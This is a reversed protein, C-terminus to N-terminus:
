VPTGAVEAVGVLFRVLRWDHGGVVATLVLIVVLIVVLVEVLVAGLSADVHRVRRWRRWTDAVHDSALYVVAPHNIRRL